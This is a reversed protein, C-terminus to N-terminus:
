LIYQNISIFEPIKIIKRALIIYFEPMKSIKLVYIEPLFQTGGLTSQAGVGITYVDRTWNSYRTLNKPRNVNPEIRLLDLTETRKSQTRTKSM